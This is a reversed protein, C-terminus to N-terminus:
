AEDNITVFFFNRKRISFILYAHISQSSFSRCIQRDVEERIMRKSYKNIQKNSTSIHWSWVPFHIVRFLSNM